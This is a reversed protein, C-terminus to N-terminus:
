ASRFREVDIVRDYEMINELVKNSAAREGIYCHVESNTPLKRNALSDGLEDM